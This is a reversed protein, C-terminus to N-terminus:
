VYINVAVTIKRFTESFIHGSKPFHVRVTSLNENILEKNDLPNRFSLSRKM